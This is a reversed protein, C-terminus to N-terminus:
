PLIARQTWHDWTQIIEYLRDGPSITDNVQRHGYLRYHQVLKGAEVGAAILRQAAVLSQPSPEFECFNGMFAICIAKQNFIKSHAGIYNWGRGVYICGAGGILFNYGIDDWKKVQTHYEQINRVVKHNERVQFIHIFCKVIEVKYVNLCNEEDNTHLEFYGSKFCYKPWCYACHNCQSSTIRFSIVSTSTRPGVM